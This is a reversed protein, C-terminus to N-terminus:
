SSPSILKDMDYLFKRANSLHINQKEIPMKNFINILMNMRPNKKFFDKQNNLFNWFLGDWTEQWNGKKFNSMKLIYNSSSIYPKSSMVGGDSFQSMGYVNPVMVWDYSDIYMEMFWKYVENPDFECLLMFNGIIMLREIHHNYGYKLTKKITIDIPEIGTTGNYFSNPIKRNFNWFNNTREFTGKSVYIGRIFERWGIIQRIIGEINNIRIKNTKSFTLIKNIVYNPTLLGSNMLPSLLSHNLFTKELLIADEFDGFESLRNSLFDDLWKKASKFNTPYITKEDFVGYNNSYNMEVYNIASKYNSDIKPFNIPPVSKNKPYKKRNEKDFTWKGGEPKNNKDILIGLKKRQEIYFSTQFFKKRSPKFYSNIFISDNIFQPSNYITLKINKANCARDIRKSLYNDVPNYIHISKFNTNKLFKSINSNDDISEIYHTEINNKKLFAEYNKMSARHFLLKQKHFKYQNFFLYEEILFTEFNLKLLRSNEFLQNPFVLFANM